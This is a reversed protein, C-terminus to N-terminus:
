ASIEWSKKEEKQKRSSRRKKAMILGYMEEVIREMLSAIETSLVRVWNSSSSTGNKKKDKNKASLEHLLSYLLKLGSFELSSSQSDQKNAKAPNLPIVKVGLTARGPSFSRGVEVMGYM